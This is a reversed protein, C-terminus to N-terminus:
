VVAVLRTNPNYPVVRLDAERVTVIALYRLQSEVEAQEVMLAQALQLPIRPFDVWARWLVLIQANDQDKDRCFETTGGFVISEFYRGSEGIAATGFGPASMSRPTFPHGGGLWSILLHPRAEHFFTTAFAFQFDRFRRNAQPTNGSGATTMGRIRQPSRKTLKPIGTYSTGAGNLHVGQKNLPFDEM